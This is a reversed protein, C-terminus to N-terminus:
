GFETKYANHIKVKKGGIGKIGKMVEVRPKVHFEIKVDETLLLPPDVELCSQRDARRM